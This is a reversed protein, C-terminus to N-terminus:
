VSRDIAMRRHIEMILEMPVSLSDAARGISVEGARVKKIAGELVQRPLTPFSIEPRPPLGLQAARKEPSGHQKRVEDYLSVAGGSPLLRLDECRRAAVQFSVGFLHGLYLIEIDGVADQHIRHIARIKRLAIGVGAMPLLLNSAFADAYREVERRPQRIGGFLNTPDFWAFNTGNAHHAVIHGLEHAVTFLMRPPFRPSVFVFPVGDIVASAGDIRQHRMVLLIVGVKDVALSPLNLLPEVMDGNFFVERFTDADRVADDYNSHSGEFRKPWDLAVTPPMLELSRDIKESLTEVVPMQSAKFDGMTERFLLATQRRRGSRPLFESPSIGLTSALERLEALSPEASGTLEILRNLEIGSEESIDAVSKGFREFIERLTEM